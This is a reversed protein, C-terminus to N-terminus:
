MPKRKGISEELRDVSAMPKGIQDSIAIATEFCMRAQDVMGMDRFLEGSRKFSDMIDTPAGHTKIQELHRQVHNAADDSEGRKHSVFAMSLQVLASNKKEELRDFIEKASHLYREAKSLNPTEIYISATNLLLSGQIRLDGIRQAFKIARDFYELALDNKELDYLSIGLGNYLNPLRLVDHNGECIEVAQKWAETAEEHLAQLSLISGKTALYDSRESRDPHESTSDDLLSLYEYGKDFDTRVAYIMALNKFIRAAVSVDTRESIEKEARQFIELADKSQGQKRMIEGIQSAAELALGLDEEEASIREAEKFDEIADKWKGALNRMRGRLIYIDTVFPGWADPDKMAELIELLDESFGEGILSEGHMTVLEAARESLGGKVFHFQAELVSGPDSFDSYYEGAQRHYETRRSKSLQGCFFEKLADHIVYKSDAAESLLSQSILSDIMDHDLKEEAFLASASVPERFVSAVSLITREKESLKSAIEQRLFRKVDGAVVQTSSDVLELFLPHGETKKIIEDFESMPLKRSSLLKRSEKDTLGGLEMEVVHKKVSMDRTDYFPPIQRGLVIMKFGNSAGLFEKTSELFNLMDGRAFQCDDLVIIGDLGRLCEELILGVEDLDIEKNSDLYFKLDNRELESLVKSLSLLLGRLTTWDKLQYYFLNTKGKLEKTVKAALASKGIGAIGRVALIRQEKSHLFDGVKKLEKRRGFFRHLKPLKSTVLRRKQMMKKQYEAMDFASKRTHTVIDLLTSGDGLITPIEQLRVTRTGGAAGLLEIQEGGIGIETKRACDMGRSTLFYCIRRRKGGQVHRLEGSLFGDEVLAGIVQSVQSRRIELARAIGSQTLSHPLEAQEYIGVHNDLFLLIRENIQLLYKKTYYKKYYSKRVM